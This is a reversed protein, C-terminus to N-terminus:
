RPVIQIANIPSRPVNTAQTQATINLTNSTAFFQVYNGPGGGTTCKAFTGSFDANPRDICVVSSGNLAYKGDYENAGNNGDTYLYVDYGNVDPDLGTIQITIPSTDANDLYGRMLRINGPADAIPLAGSDAGQWTITANTLQGNEDRLTQPQQSVPQAVNNWFSKSVVGAMDAARMPVGLGVFKIGIAKNLTRQGSTPIPSASPSRAVIQIGNVPARFGGNGSDSGVPIATLTFSTAYTSLVVYNGPGDNCQTFSGSFNAGALDSCYTPLGNDLAFSAYRSGSNDGDSYVYVDYGNSAPSLGAIHVTTASNNGDDLYGSMMRVNGAADSIPLKGLNNSNWAVTVGTFAGTEDVLPMPVTAEIGTANNWNSKAVLGATESAGMPTGQGVFNLSIVKPAPASGSQTVKIQQGGVTITATRSAGTTNAQLSYTLVGNSTGTITLWSQSSSAGSAVSAPSVQLSATGAGSGQNTAAAGAAFAIRISGTSTTDGSPRLSTDSADAIYVTGRADAAVSVPSSFGTLWTSLTQSVANWMRIQAAGAEAIYVNGQGDVAIGHPENLNQALTTSSQAAVNWKKATGSGLETFYVNGIGDLAVAAPESLGSMVTSTQGTAATWVKIANNFTDAVYIDGNWDVAIGSPHNFGSVLTAPLAM